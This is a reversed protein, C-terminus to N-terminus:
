CGGFNASVVASSALPGHMYWVRKLSGRTLFLTQCCLVVCTYACCAHGSVRFSAGGFTLPLHHCFDADAYVKVYITMRETGTVVETVYIGPDVLLRTLRAGRVLVLIVVHHPRVLLNFPM